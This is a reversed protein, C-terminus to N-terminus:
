VADANKMKPDLADRLGDGLLNLSLTTLVIALGPFYTMYAYGRIYHRGESLMTGWEPDPPQIGLGIFSLGAAMLIADAIGLSIQVIIPPLCNPLIHTMIIQYDNLGSASAAEIYEEQRITLTTARVVRAFRPIASIGLAIMLNVLGTGLTAVIAIALLVNPIAMLIDMIRMIVNDIQGEYYGAIAGLISGVLLAIGIAIFGVMLSIRTGYIVRSFIDRGFKDTGFFHQANPSQFSNKLSQEAFKYPAFVDAFIATLLLILLISLGLLAMKNKALARVITGFRSKTKKINQVDLLNKTETIIM